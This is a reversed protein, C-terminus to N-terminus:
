GKLFSVHWFWTLGNLWWLRIHKWWMHRIINIAARWFRHWPRSQWRCIASGGSIMAIEYLFQALYSVFTTSIFIYQAYEVFSNLLCFDLPSFLTKGCTQTVSNSSAPDYKSVLEGWRTRKRWLKNWKRSRWGSKRAPTCRPTNRTM